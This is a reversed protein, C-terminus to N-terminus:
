LPQFLEGKQFVIYDAKLRELAREFAAAPATHACRAAIAEATLGAPQEALLQLIQQQLEIQAPSPAAPLAGSPSPTSCLASAGTLKTEARPTPLIEARPPAPAPPPPESPVNHLLDLCVGALRSLTERMVGSTAGLRELPQRLHAHGAAAHSLRSPVFGIAEATALHMCRRAASEAPAAAAVHPPAEHSGDYRLDIAAIPMGVRLSPPPEDAPRVLQVCLLNLAEDAVFCRRMTCPVGWKDETSVAAGALVLWGATDVIAGASLSSLTALPTFSRALGRRALQSTGGGRAASDPLWSNRKTRLSVVRGAAGRTAPGRAEVSEVDAGCLFGLAGESLGAPPSADDAHYYDSWVRM